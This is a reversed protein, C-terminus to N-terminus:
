LLVGPCHKMTVSSIRLLHANQNHNQSGGHCRVYSKAYYCRDPDNFRYRTLGLPLVCNRLDLVGVILKYDISDIVNGEQGSENSYPSIECSVCTSGNHENKRVPCVNLPVLM